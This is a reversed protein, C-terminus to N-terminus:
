PRVMPRPSETGPASSAQRTLESHARTMAGQFASDQKEVSRKFGTERQEAQTLGAQKNKTAFYKAEIAPASRDPFYRILDPWHKKAAIFEEMRCNDDFSWPFGKCKPM